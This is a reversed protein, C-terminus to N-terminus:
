GSGVETRQARLEKARIKAAEIAAKRADTMPKKFPNFKNEIM